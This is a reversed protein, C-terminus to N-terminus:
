NDFIVNLGEKSTTPLGNTIATAGVAYIGDYILNDIVQGSEAFNILNIETTEAILGNIMVLNFRDTEVDGTISVMTDGNFEVNSLILNNHDVGSSLMSTYGKITANSIKIDKIMDGAAIFVGTTSEAVLGNIVLDIPDNAAIITAYSYFLVTDKLRINDLTLRKCQFFDLSFLIFLGGTAYVNRIIFDSKTYSQIADVIQRFAINYTCNFFEVNDIVVNDVDFYERPIIGAHCNHFSTNRIIVERAGYSIGFGEAKDGTDINYESNISDEIRVINKGGICVSGDVIMSGCPYHSDIVSSARSSSGIIAITNDWAVGEYGNHVISHRCGHITGNIRVFMTTGKIEVGYGPSGDGTQNSRRVAGYSNTNIIGSYCDFLQILRQPFNIVDINASLDRVWKFMVGNCSDGDAEYNETINKVTLKGSINVKASTVKAVTIVTNYNDRLATHLFVVGNYINRVVSMEGRGVSENYGIVDGFAETSKIRILDNISPELTTKLYNQGKVAAESVAVYSGLSGTFTLFTLATIDSLLVANDSYISIDGTIAFVGSMYYEGKPLYAVKNNAQCYTILALFATRYDSGDSESYFDLISKFSPQKIGQSELAQSLYIGM